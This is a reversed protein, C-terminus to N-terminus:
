GSQLKRKVITSVPVIMFGRKKASPIWDRLAKITADHPHGVGIATGKKRAVKELVKLQQSISEISIENDLFVDRVAHPVNLAQALRFGVTDKTTKSDLFMLGRDKLIQVVLKMGRDWTTFKSGMHNNIGIFNPFQSLNWKIRSILQKDTLGILLANKGPNTGANLPEMPMHVLLEHGNKRARKTHKSLHYGYPMFALTIPAPLDIVIATRKQNLGLDDIVIAIAPQGNQTPTRASFKLWPANNGKVHTFNPARSIKNSLPVRKQAKVPNRAEYKHNSKPPKTEAVLEKYVNKSQKNPVAPSVIDLRPILSDQPINKAIQVPAQYQGSSTNQMDPSIRRDSAISFNIGFVLSLFIGFLFTLLAGSFALDLRSESIDQYLIQRLWSPKAITKKSAQELRHKTQSHEAM